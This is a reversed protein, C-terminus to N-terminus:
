YKDCKYTSIERECHPNFEFGTTLQKLKKICIRTGMGPLLEHKKNHRGVTHFKSNESKFNSTFKINASAIPAPAVEDDHSHAWTKSHPHFTYVIEKTKQNISKCIYAQYGSIDCHMIDFVYTTAMRFIACGTVMALIAPYAFDSAFM